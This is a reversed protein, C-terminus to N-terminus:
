KAEPSVLWRYSGRARALYEHLWAFRRKEAPTFDFTPADIFRANTCAKMLLVLDAETLRYTPWDYRSGKPPIAIEIRRSM